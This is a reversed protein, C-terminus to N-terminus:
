FTQARTIFMQDEEDDHNFHDLMGMMDEDSIVISDYLMKNTAYISTNVLNGIDYMDKTLNNMYALFYATFDVNAGPDSITTTNMPNDDEVGSFPDSGLTTNLCM